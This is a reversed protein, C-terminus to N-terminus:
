NKKSFGSKIAILELEDSAIKMSTPPGFDFDEKKLDLTILRGNPKLVREIENFIFDGINRINLIHLVTILLCVDVSNDKLPLAQKINAVRTEINTVQNDIIRQNLREIIDQNRDVAIARVVAWILFVIELNLPFHKCYSNNMM